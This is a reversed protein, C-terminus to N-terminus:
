AVAHLLMPFSYCYLDHMAPLFRTWRTFAPTRHPPTSAIASPRGWSCLRRARRRSLLHREAARCVQLELWKEMDAISDIAAALEEAGNRPLGFSV